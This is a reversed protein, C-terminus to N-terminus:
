DDSPLRLGVAEALTAFARAIDYDTTELSALLRTIAHNTATM